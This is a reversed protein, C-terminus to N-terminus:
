SYTAKEGVVDRTLFPAPRQSPCVGPWGGGQEPGGVHLYKSMNTTTKGNGQKNGRKLPTIVSTERCEFMM